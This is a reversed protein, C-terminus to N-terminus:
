GSFIYGMPDMTSTYIYVLMPPINIPDMNGYIAAGHIRWPYPVEGSAVWDVWTKASPRGGDSWRASRGRRRPTRPRPRRAPRVAQRHTPFPSPPPPPHFMPSTQPLQAALFRFFHANIVQDGVTSNLIHSFTALIYSSKLVFVHLNMIIKAGVNPITQTNVM